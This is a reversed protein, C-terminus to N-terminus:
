ITGFFGGLEEVRQLMEYCVLKTCYPSTLGESLGWDAPGGM